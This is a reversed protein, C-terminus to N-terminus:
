SRPEKVVLIQRQGVWPTEAGNLRLDLHYQGGEGLELVARYVGPAAAELTATRDLDTTDARSAAVSGSLGSVRKASADTVAVTVHCTDVFGDPCAKVDVSWGMAAAAEREALVEEYHESELYHDEAAPASPHDIAQSIMIANAVFVVGLSAAIGLPWYSRPPATSRTM